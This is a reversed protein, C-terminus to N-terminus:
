APDLRVARVRALARVAAQLESAPDDEHYVREAPEINDLFKQYMTAYLLHVLVTTPALAREPEATPLERNWATTWVDVAHARRAEPLWDSLRHIDIAPHGVFTDAWDVIARSTGDSRWNGPHFDGHVLTIPLGSAALEGVISPLEVVLAEVDARLEAPLPLVSLLRETEAALDDPLVRPALLEGAGTALQAQVAVWRSVVNEVTERDPEWCDVGPAHALLSWRDRVSKGLVAPALTEDYRQVHEIIDADVSAFRNTAKAWAGPFRLLCSLNWTKVQVPDVPGLISRAWETIREPGDVEAWPARLPQPAVITDWGDYPTEDLVGARPEGMAQVHYVTRGGRGLETEDAHVLRLVVTRVGLLEDLRRTVEEVESWWPPGTEFPPARGVYRTGVSVLAEVTKTEM